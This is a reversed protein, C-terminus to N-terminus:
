APKLTEVFDQVNTLRHRKLREAEVIAQVQRISDDLQNNVIVYQYEKYHSIEDHAKSLRKIIEEESDEARTHLRQELASWSPPLVFISVVDQELLQTLRRTGQWDIDFIIDKGEHLATEVSKKPIGYWNNNYVLAYELMEDAAIMEQFKEVTVFHYHQGDVEDGRKSRTTASVSFFTNSDQKRLARSITTKGGGPPSSLILILGRRKFPSSSPSIPTTSATTM